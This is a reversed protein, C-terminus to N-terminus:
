SPVRERRVASTKASSWATKVEEGLVLSKIVARPVGMCDFGDFRVLKDGPNVLGDHSLSHQESQV